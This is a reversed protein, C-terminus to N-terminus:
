GRFAVSFLLALTTLVFMGFVSPVALHADGTAPAPSPAEMASTLTSQTLLVIAAAMMMMVLRSVMIGAQAAM